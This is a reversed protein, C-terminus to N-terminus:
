ENGPIESSVYEAEKLSTFVLKLPLLSLKSGCVVNKGISRNNLFCFELTANFLRYKQVFFYINLNMLM